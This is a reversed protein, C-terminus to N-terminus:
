WLTSSSRWQKTNKTHHKTKSPNKVSHRQTTNWKIKNREYHKSQQENTDRTRAFGFYLFFFKINFFYGCVIAFSVFFVFFLTRTSSSSFFSPIRIHIHVKTSYTKLRANHPHLLKKKGTPKAPCQVRKEWYHACCNNAHIEQNKTERRQVSSATKSTDNIKWSTKYTKLKM